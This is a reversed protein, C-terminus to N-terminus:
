VLLHDAHGLEKLAADPWVSSCAVRMNDVAQPCYLYYMQLHEIRIAGTEFSFGEGRFAFLLPLSQSVCEVVEEQLM